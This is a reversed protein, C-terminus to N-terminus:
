NGAEAQPALPGAEAELREEHLEATPVTRELVRRDLDVAPGHDEGSVSVAGIFYIM